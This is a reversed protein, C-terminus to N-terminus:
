WDEARARREVERAQQAALLTREAAIAVNRKFSRWNANLFALMGPILLGSLFAWPNHPALGEHLSILFTVTLLPLFYFITATPLPSIAAVAGMCLIIMGGLIM